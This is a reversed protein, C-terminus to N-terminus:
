TFLRVHIIWQRCRLWVNKMQRTFYARSMMQWFKLMKKAGLSLSDPTESSLQSVCKAWVMCLVLKLSLKQGPWKCWLVLQIAEWYFPMWTCPPNGVKQCNNTLGGTHCLGRCVAFDLCLSPNVLNPTFSSFSSCLVWVQLGTPLLFVCVSWIRIKLAITFSM